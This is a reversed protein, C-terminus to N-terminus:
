RYQYMFREMYYLFIQNYYGSFYLDSGHGSYPMLLIACTTVGQKIYAEQFQEAIEYDVLGDHTGQYILSPPSNKNVLLEPELLEEEGQILLLKSLGNAPYFPILGKIKIDSKILDSYKHSALALGSALTLQGGASGGSIFVSNLNAHYEEAHEELYDIFIGIHRVMDNMSYDGLKGKDVNFLQLWQFGNNLGYQIDFVVYGQAAFYKNMQAFNEIGKDGSTWGGGHIRILVSYNGPLKDVEEMPTYADFYLKLDKDVGSNGQYFPINEELQYGPTAAGFFYDPIFFPLQRFDMGKFVMNSEFDLGFAQQYDQKAKVMTSPLVVFPLLFVIMEIITTVIVSFQYVLYKQKLIKLLLIGFSLFILSYYLAYEPIIAEILGGKQERLLNIALYLGCYLIISLVIIIFYTIFKWRRSDERLQEPTDELPRNNKVQQVKYISLLSGLFFLFLLILISLFSQSKQNNPQLSAITNCVMVVILGFSSLILYAFSLVPNIAEKAAMGINLFLLVM